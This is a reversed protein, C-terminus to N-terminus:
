DIVYWTGTEPNHSWGSRARAVSESVERIKGLGQTGLLEPESAQVDILTCYRNADVHLITEQNTMKAMALVADIKSEPLAYGNELEGQWSGIILKVPNASAFRSILAIDDAQHTQNLAFIIIPQYTRM